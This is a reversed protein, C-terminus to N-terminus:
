FKLYQATWILFIHLIKIYEERKYTYVLINVFYEQSVSYFYYFERGGDGKFYKGGAHLCRRRWKHFAQQFDNETMNTRFRRLQIL